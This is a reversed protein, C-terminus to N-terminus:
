EARGKLCSGEVLVQDGDRDKGTLCHLKFYRLLGQLWSEFHDFNDKGEYADPLKARLGKLEPLDSPVGKLSDKIYKILDQAMRAEHESDLQSQAANQWNEPMAITGLNMSSAQRAYDQDLIKLGMSVPQGADPTPVGLPTGQNRQGSNGSAPKTVM